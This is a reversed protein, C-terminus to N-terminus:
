SPATLTASIAGVSGPPSVFPSPARSPRVSITALAASYAAGIASTTSHTANKMAVGSKRVRDLM